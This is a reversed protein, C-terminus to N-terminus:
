EISLNFGIEEDCKIEASKNEYHLTFPHEVGDKDTLIFTYDGNKNVTVTVGDVTTAGNVVGAPISTLTYNEMNEVSIHITSKSGCGALVFMLCLVCALTLLRKGNRHNRTHNM